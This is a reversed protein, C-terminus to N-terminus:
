QMIGPRPVPYGVEKMRRFEMLPKVQAQYCEAALCAAIFRDDHYGSPASYRSGDRVILAMEELLAKSAVTIKKEHFLGHFVGIAREKDNQTSKWHRIFNYKLKDYKTYLYERFNMVNSKLVNQLIEPMAKASEVKFNIDFRSKIRDIERLVVQGPGTVELTLYSGPYLAVMMICIKAFELPHCTNSSYEAVQVMGNHDAKWASIVSMDSDASSAYAPDAGMVYSIGSKQLQPYEYITLNHHAYAEAEHLTINNDSVSVFYKDGERLNARQDNIAIIDFVRKGKIQFADDEDWPYEQLCYTKDGHYKEYLMYRFYAIQPMTLDYDYLDKVRKVKMREENSLAYSYARYVDTEPNLAYDEKMWWGCFINHITKAKKGDQWMDYYQNLGNATSEYLFLRAPHRDSLGSQITKLDDYNQFWAVESAHLMTYAQSRATSGAKSERATTHLFHIESLNDLIFMERNDKLAPIKHERALTLYLIRFLERMANRVNYDHIMFASKLGKFYMMWFLDLALLISTCGLQRAKLINFTRISDNDNITNFITLIIYKQSTYWRNYAFSMNGADKSIIRLASCWRVFHNFMDHTNM